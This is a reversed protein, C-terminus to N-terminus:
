LPEAAAARDAGAAGHGAVIGPHRARRLQNAPLEVVLHVRALHTLVLEGREGERWPLAALSGLALLAAAFHSKSM